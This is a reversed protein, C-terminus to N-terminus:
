RRSGGAGSSPAASSPTSSPISTSSRSGVSGGEARMGGSSGSQTLSSPAHGRHITAGTIAGAGARPNTGGRAPMPAISTGSAIYIRTSAVGRSAAQESFRGLKGLTQRPIGLGASDNRFQFSTPSAIGSRVLPKTNVAFLTPQGPRPPRVPKPPKPAVVKTVNQVGYWTGGPTWGWGTNPCFAWSGYHYPLWGWPYPSVWSYGSNAYWAWAGNSYPDWAASAFYPRWMWGCGSVMSFAGYYSLDSQGYAYPSNFAGFGGVRAHYEASLKDWQDLPAPVINKAIVPQNQSDLDFTVTKKKAVSLTSTPEDIRVTGDLVALRAQGDTIELRIHAGPPLALKHTGFLLAFEDTRSKMLSVYATGQILRVTSTTAGATTRALQPFAVLSDPGIRLTSNDEFEVEVAGMGTRVRSQEIIPLNTIAPEFGRGISRDVQVAGRVESLRVIRVNSVSATTPLTDEAIARLVVALSLFSLFMATAKVTSMKMNAEEQPKAFWGSLSLALQGRESSAEPGRGADSLKARRYLKAKM